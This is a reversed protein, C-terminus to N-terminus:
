HCGCAGGCCGGGGSPALGPRVTTTDGSAGVSVFVSLKRRVDAHGNPCTVDRDADGMARRLDFSIDCERCFYEYLAMSRWTVPDTVPICVQHAPGATVAGPVHTGLDLEDIRPPEVPGALFPAGDM